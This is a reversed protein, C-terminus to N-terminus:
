GGQRLRHIERDNLYRFDGPALDQLNLPGFAIRTLIKVRHGVAECMKKILHHRGETVTIRLLTNKKRRGLFEVRARGTRRGDIVIGRRLTSLADAKVFGHVLAEYVKSVQSAPRMLRNALDGDNTFLLLGVTDFDLRGVPEVRCKVRKLMEFVTPRGQPDSRTTIFGTPKHLMIYVHPELSKILKGDVRVHDKEVDIPAGPDIRVAGNVQVRGEKVMRGAGRRSTVGARALYLVLRM